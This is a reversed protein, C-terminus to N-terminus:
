ARRVQGYSGCGLPRDSVFEYLDTVVPRSQSRDMSDLQQRPSAVIGEKMAFSIKPNKRFRRHGV